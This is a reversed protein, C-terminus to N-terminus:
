LAASSKRVRRALTGACWGTQVRPSSSGGSPSRGSEGRPLCASPSRCCDSGRAGRSSRRPHVARDQPYAQDPRQDRGNARMRSSGARAAAITGPMTSPEVRSTVRIPGSRCSRCRWRQTSSSPRTTLFFRTLRGDQDRVAVGTAATRTMNRSGTGPSAQTSGASFLKMSRCTKAFSFNSCIGM